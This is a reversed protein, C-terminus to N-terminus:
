CHKIQRGESEVTDSYSLISGLVTTAFVAPAIVVRSSNMRIPFKVKCAISTPPIHQRPASRGELQGFAERGAVTEGDPRLQDVM